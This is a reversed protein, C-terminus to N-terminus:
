VVLPTDKGIVVPVNTFQRCVLARPYVREGSAKMVPSSVM